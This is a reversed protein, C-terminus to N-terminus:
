SGCHASQGTCVTSCAHCWPEWPAYVVWCVRVVNAVAYEDVAVALACRVPKFASVTGDTGVRGRAEAFFSHGLDQLSLVFLPVRTLMNLVVLAEVCKHIGFGNGITFKSYPSHTEFDQTVLTHSLNGWYWYGCYAMVALIGFMIVYACNLADAFRRPEAMSARVSPFTSHGALSLQVCAFMEPGAHGIEQCCVSAQSSPRTLKHVNHLM